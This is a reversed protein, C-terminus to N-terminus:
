QGIATITCTEASMSADAPLTLSSATVSPNYTGCSNGIQGGEVLSPYTSFAVPFAYTQLTGTQKYGHLYCTVIKVTGQVTQSCSATGSSGTFARPPSSLTLTNGTSQSGTNWWSYNSISVGTSVAGDGEICLNTARYVCTGSFSIETAGNNSERVNNFIFNVTNNGGTLKAISKITPAQAADFQLIANTVVVRSFPSLGYLSWLPASIASTGPAYEIHANDFTVSGGGDHGNGDTAIGSTLSDFSVGDLLLDSNANNDVVATTGNQFAGGFMAVNEGSNTINSPVNWGTGNNTFNTHYFRTEWSNNGLQYGTGFNEIKDNEFLLFDGYAPSTSITGAPDGGTYIGITSTGSGPGSLTCDIMGGQHYSAGGSTDAWVFAARPTRSLIVTADPGPCRVTVNCPFTITSAVVYPSSAAPVFITGGINGLATVANKFARANDTLGDGKAGHATIDIVGTVGLNTLVPNTDQTDSTPGNSIISATGLQNGNLLSQASNSLNSHGVFTVIRGLTLLLAIVFKNM